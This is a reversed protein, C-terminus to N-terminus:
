LKIDDDDFRNKTVHILFSTMDHVQTNATAEYNVLMQQKESCEVVRGSLVPPLMLNHHPLLQQTELIVNHASHNQEHTVCM